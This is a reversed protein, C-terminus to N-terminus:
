RRAHEPCPHFLDCPGEHGEPHFDFVAGAPQGVAPVDVGGPQGHAEAHDGGGGLTAGVGLALLCSWAVLKSGAPRGGGPPRRAAGWSALAVGTLIALEVAVTLADLASVAEPVGAHPGFPLGVLRSLSWVGVAVLNGTVVAVKMRGATGVFTRAAWLQLVAAGVFGAGLLWSENRHTNAAWLHLGAAAASLCPM